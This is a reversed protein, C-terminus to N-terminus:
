KRLHVISATLVAHNSVSHRYARVRYKGTRTPLCTEAVFTTSVLTNGVLPLDVDPELESLAATLRAQRRASSRSNRRRGPRQRCVNLVCDQASAITVLSPFTSYTFRTTMSACAQPSTSSTSCGRNSLVRQAHQLSQMALPEAAGHSSAGPAVAYALSARSSSKSSKSM